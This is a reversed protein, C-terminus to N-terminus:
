AEDLNDALLEFMYAILSIFSCISAISLIKQYFSARQFVLMVINILGFIAFFTQIIIVISFISLRVVELM